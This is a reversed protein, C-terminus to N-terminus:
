RILLVGVLAGLVACVALFLFSLLILGCSFLINAPAARSGTLATLLAGSAGLSVLLALTGLAATLEISWGLMVYGIYLGIVGGGVGCAASFLIVPLSPVAQRDLADDLEAPLDDYGEDPNPVPLDYSLAVPRKATPVSGAAGAGTM